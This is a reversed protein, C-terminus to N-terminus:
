HLSYCSFGFLFWFGFSNKHWKMFAAFILAIGAGVLLSHSANNHYRGFDQMLVGVVSDADPLMSFGGALLLLTPVGQILQPPLEPVYNQALKYIMYSSALHAIPSPM